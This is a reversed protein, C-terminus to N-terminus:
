IVIITPHQINSSKAVTDTIEAPLIISAPLFTYLEALPFSLFPNPIIQHFSKYCDGRILLPVKRAGPETSVNADFCLGHYDTIHLRRLCHLTM